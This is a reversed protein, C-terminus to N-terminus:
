RRNINNNAMAGSFPNPENPMFPINGPGPIPNRPAAFIRPVLSAGVGGIAKIGALLGIGTVRFYIFLSGLISIALLIYFNNLLNTWPFTRLETLINQLIGRNEIIGNRNAALENVIEGAGAGANVVTNIANNIIPDVLVDVQDVKAEECSSMTTTSSSSAVHEIKNESINNNNSTNTSNKSAQEEIKKKLIEARAYLKQRESEAFEGITRNSILNPASSDGNYRFLINSNQQERQLREANERTERILQEWPTEVPEGKCKSSGPINLNNKNKDGDGINRFLFINREKLKKILILHRETQKCM